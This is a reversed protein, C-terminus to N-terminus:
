RGSATHEYSYSSYDGLAGGFFTIAVSMVDPFGCLTRGIQESLLATDVPDEESVWELRLPDWGTGYLAVEVHSAEVTLKRIEIVSSCAQGRMGSAAEEETPGELLALIADRKSPPVWRGVAVFHPQPESGTGTAKYMYVLHSEGSSVDFRVPLSALVLVESVTVGDLAIIEVVGTASTPRAPYVTTDFRAGVGEVKDHLSLRDLHLVNGSGDMIRIFLGIGEAPAEGSVEIPPTLAEGAEPSSIVIPGCEASSSRNYLSSSLYMPMMRDEFASQYFKLETTTPMGGNWEADLVLAKERYEYVNLSYRHPCVMCEYGDEEDNSFAPTYRVVELAPDSDINTIRFGGLLSARLEGGSALVLVPVVAHAEPDYRYATMSLICWNCMPGSEWYAIIESMGDADLDECEVSELRYHLFDGDGERTDEFAVTKQASGTSVPTIALKDPVYRNAGYAHRTVSVYVAVTDQGSVGLEFIWSDSSKGCGRPEICVMCPAVIAAALAVVSSVLLLKPFRSTRLM